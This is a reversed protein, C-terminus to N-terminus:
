WHIYKLYTIINIFIFYYIFLFISPIFFILLLLILSTFWVWEFYFLVNLFFSHIFIYFSVVAGSLIFCYIFFFSHSINFIVINTHTVVGM